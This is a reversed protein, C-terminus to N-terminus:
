LLDQQRRTFSLMIGSQSVDKFILIIAFGAPADAHRGLGDPGILVEARVHMDRYAAHDVGDGAGSGRSLRSGRSAILDHEGLLM